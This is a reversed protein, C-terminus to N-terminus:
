RSAGGMRTHALSTGTGYLAANTRSLALDTEVLARQLQVDQDALTKMLADTNKILAGLQDRRDSRSLEDTVVSLSNIVQKLDRDKQTITCDHQSENGGASRHIQWKGSLSADDAAPALVAAAALLFAVLPIKM